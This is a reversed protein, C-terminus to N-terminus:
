RDDVVRLHRNEADAPDSGRGATRWPPPPARRTPVIATVNSWRTTSPARAASNPSATIARSSCPVPSFSDSGPQLGAGIGVSAGHARPVRDANGGPAVGGGPHRDARQNRLAAETHRDPERGQQRDDGAD